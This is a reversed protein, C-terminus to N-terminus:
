SSVTVSAKKAQGGSQACPGENSRLSRPRSSGPRWVITGTKRIRNLLGDISGLQWDDPLESLVTHMM